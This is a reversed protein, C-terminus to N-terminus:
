FATRYRGVLPQGGAKAREASAAIDQRRQLMHLTQFVDFSRHGRHRGQPGCLGYLVLRKGLCRNFNIPLCFLVQVQWVLGDQRVHGLASIVAERRAAKLRSPRPPTTSATHLRAPSWRAPRYGRTRAPPISSAARPLGCRVYSHHALTAVVVRRAGSASATAGVAVPYIDVCTRKCRLPAHLGPVFKPGTVPPPRQTRRPTHIDWLPEYM